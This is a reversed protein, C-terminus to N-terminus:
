EPRAGTLQEITPRYFNDPRVTDSKPLKPQHVDGVRRLRGSEHDFEYRGTRADNGPRPPLNSSYYVRNAPHAIPDRGPVPVQMPHLGHSWSPPPQYSEASAQWAMEPRPPADADVFRGTGDRSM